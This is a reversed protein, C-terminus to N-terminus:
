KQLAEKRVSYRECFYEIDNASFLEHLVSWLADKESRLDQNEVTQSLSGRTDVIDDLKHVREQLNM